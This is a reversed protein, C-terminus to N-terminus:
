IEHLQHVLPKILNNNNKGKLPLFQFALISTLLTPKPIEKFFYVNKWNEVKLIYQKLSRTTGSVGHGEQEASVKEV